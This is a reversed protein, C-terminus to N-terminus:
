KEVILFNDSATRCRYTVRAFFRDAAIAAGPYGPNAYDDVVIYGGDILKTWLQEM